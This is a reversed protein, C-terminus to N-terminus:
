SGKFLKVLTDPQINSGRPDIQLLHDVVIESLSRSDLDDIQTEAGVDLSKVGEYIRVERVKGNLEERLISIDELEMGLNDKIEIISSPRTVASFADNTILELVDNTTFRQYLPGDEWNIFRPDKDWDLIMMGRDRDGVDNFDHGFPSGIYWVPVGSSNVKLQRQHFHGTFVYDPNTFGHYGFQGRDPMEVTGHMMFTPLEFHGFLYKADMGLVELYETGVLYPVFGVDGVVTCENYVHVNSWEEFESTSNITRNERYFMDHNGTLIHVPAVDRLMRMAKRSYDLTDLRIRSRNDFWDGVMIIADAHNEKAKICFWEIFRICDQNHVPSDQRDGFHIDGFVAATKFLPDSM